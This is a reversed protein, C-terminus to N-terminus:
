EEPSTLGKIVVERIADTLSESEPDAITTPDADKSGVFHATATITGGIGLGTFYANSKITGKAKLTSTNVTGTDSYKSHSFIVPYGELAFLEELLATYDAVNFYLKFNKGKETWSGGIPYSRDTTLFSGDDNFTWMEATSIVISVHKVKHHKGQGKYTFTIKIAGNVQWNGEVLTSFVTSKAPEAEQARSITGLCFFLLLSLSLSLIFVCSRRISLM